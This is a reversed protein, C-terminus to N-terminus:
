PIVSSTDPSLAPNPSRPPASVPPTTVVGNTETAVIPIAIVNAQHNHYGESEPYKKKASTLALGLAENKNSAAVAGAVHSFTIGLEKTRIASISYAYIM